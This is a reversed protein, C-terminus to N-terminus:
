KAGWERGGPSLFYVCDYKTMMIDEKMHTKKKFLHKELEHVFKQNLLHLCRFLPISCLQWFIQLIRLSMYNYIFTFYLIIHIAHKGNM